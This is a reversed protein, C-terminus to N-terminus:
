VRGEGEAARLPHALAYARELSAGHPDGTELVRAEAARVAEELGDPRGVTAVQRLPEGSDTRVRARGAEGAVGEVAPRGVIEVLPARDLDSAFTEGIRRMASELRVREQRLDEERQELQGAMHNFEAGLAAFEDRGVIPVQASFDGSGLRRAAELFSLIQR